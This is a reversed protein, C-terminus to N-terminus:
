VPLLLRSQGPRVFAGSVPPPESTDPANVVTWPRPTGRQYIEGPQFVAESGSRLSLYDVVMPAVHPVSFPGDFALKRVLDDDLPLTPDPGMDGDCIWFEGAQANAPKSDSSASFIGLAMRSLTAAQGVTANSHEVAWTSSRLVALRRNSNTIFRGVVYFWEGLAVTANSTTPANSGTWYGMRVLTSSSISTEWGGSGAGDTLCWVTGNVNIYQVWLGVSFPLATIAPTPLILAQTLSTRFQIGVDGPVYFRSRRMM